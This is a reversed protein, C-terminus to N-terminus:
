IFTKFVADIIRRSVRVDGFPECDLLGTTNKWLSIEANFRRGSEIGCCIGQGSLGGGAGEASYRSVLVLEM